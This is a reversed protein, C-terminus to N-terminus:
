GPYSILNHAVNNLLKFLLLHLLVYRGETRTIGHFHFYPNNFTGFDGTLAGLVDGPRMKAKKGGDICLTAMEAELPVVASSAPPTQWNLKIQLMDSLINTEDIDESRFSILQDERLGLPQVIHQQLFTECTGPMTLPLGVWEDLKVFTLHSIGLPYYVGQDIANNLFLVKAPENIVSLLPLYGAHVLAEICEKVFTNAILVAPGIVEFGLLCLIMGAIGLSFNNIVMEFGAPIRKELVKDIYKIVLGGLPGMIMSGLFMPIDAGVIVGITGIGGMVAGRKGGVLHGGTSGIMVPLLYTIMPGVIKAFHENPLWGTPIFLATIFGWAIFAGINPIVMATLFGGFAQVKARASKNEM